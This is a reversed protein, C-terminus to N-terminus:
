LERRQDRVSYSVVGAVSIVDAAYAQQHWINSVGPLQRRTSLRQLWYIVLVFFKNETSNLYNM